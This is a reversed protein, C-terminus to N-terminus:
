SKSSLKGLIRRTQSDIGPEKLIDQIHFWHSDGQPVVEVPDATFLFAIDYHLHAPVNEGAKTHSQVYHVDVDLISSIPNCHLAFEKGADKYIRQHAVALLNTDGDCHNGFFAYARTVKHQTLAVQQYDPSVVVASAGVHGLVTHDREFAQPTRQIFDITKLIHALEDPDHAKSLYSYIPDLVHSYSM